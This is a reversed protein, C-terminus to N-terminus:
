AYPSVWVRRDSSPRGPRRAPRATTASGTGPRRCPLIRCRTNRRRRWRAAEGGVGLEHALQSAVGGVLTFIEDLKGQEAVLGLMEGSVTDQARVSLSLKDGGEPGLSLYSGIVVVDAGLNSRVKELTAESFSDSEPLELEIRAQTVAEGPLIRLEKGAGLQTGLLEAVTTSVWSMDDRGSLNNFGLVAVSRRLTAPPEPRHVAIDIATPAAAQRVLRFVILTASVTLMAILCFLLALMRRSAFRGPARVMSPTSTSSLSRLNYALDSASQFRSEPRKELCRQISGALDLPTAIGSTSIDEPEERLIATMSEVATDRSFAQRGSAMEYLVCGLSFIDSRHDAPEGRVQEPSMYGVTGLVTGPDTPRSLTPAHTAGEHTEVAHQRALGFDLVKVRGDATLFVNSPKLDRHVIGAEHAAGLGDAIAAGTEAAKRWGLAGGELRERLTEGELLETVSYTTDGERGYDHIELINPHALKAVAKAEREFRALRDPNEALEEPLVKIAVDRDLREDHARYVEGMGGAGLPGLIEYRGLRDGASLPM